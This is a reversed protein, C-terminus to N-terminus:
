PPKSTPERGMQYSPTYCAGKWEYGDEKGKEKCPPKGAGLLWWCGGRVEVEGFRNCPPKRQGPFLKEPLPLGVVSKANGTSVSADASASTAGASDGVAATNRQRHEKASATQAEQQGQYLGAVLLCALLLGVAAIGGEVGWVAVWRPPEALRNAAEACTRAELDRKERERRAADREEALRVGGLSRWRTDHAHSWGFLPENREPGARKKMEELAAVLEQARGNFRDVPAPALLRLILADLEPSVRPNLERPPRPGPGGEHWVALGPTQSDTCPPYEDTVLRYAMVGLAFLDDSASAPYHATPHRLFLRLFGWAEPSRYAPTGPPLVKSTLTAAGRYHGAGFDMLFARGDTLRVLVNGGKVDRHVAGVAHTAEVAMAVQLLLEVVRFETPNRRASWEYLPEGEVWQMVLYRYRGSAHEWVGQAYLRPVSPSQIHSLLWAEREFREDEPFVALKLAFPGELEHGVREVRYVTGYAGRGGWGVIRWPGILMGLPLSLPDVDLLAVKKGM